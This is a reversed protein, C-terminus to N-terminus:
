RRKGWTGARKVNTLMLFAGSTADVQDSICNDTGDFNAAEILFRDNWAGRVLKVNGAEAQASVPKARVGKSERVPNVRANYGALNRVQLQAEVKGAQGPDQEIGIEINRGDQSAIARIREEVQGPSEQFRVIDTIYYVGKKDRGMKVGATWSAGPRKAATDADTAARDWYRVAQTLIPAAEVIEFWERKFYNGASERINWNGGLLRERDVMQQAKLNAIYGPDKELLIKNDYINSHIFTFSKPACEPGFRDILEERTNAWEYIDNRIVFYRILGSRDPIALGIEPNIYWDLFERLWGGTMDERPVPNCTARVVPKVGCLSRNRSLLYTFQRWTFHELQDFGILPIQSGDWAHRDNEHQMHAFRIKAGSPFRWDLYGERPLGRFDPYMEMSMDWLGGEARIQPFERRFIVAGYNPVDYYRVAEMLLAYTKGGGAAGGYIAIEAPTTVFALQPGQQPGKHYGHWMTEPM